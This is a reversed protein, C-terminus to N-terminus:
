PMFATHISSSTSINATNTFARSSNLSRESFESIGHRCLEIHVLSWTFVVPPFAHSSRSLWKRRKPIRYSVFSKCNCRDSSPLPVQTLSTTLVTCSPLRNPTSFYPSTELGLPRSLPHPRPRAVCVCMCVGWPLSGGCPKLWRSVIELAVVLFFPLCFAM